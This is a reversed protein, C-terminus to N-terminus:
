LEKGWSIARLAGRGARSVARWGAAYPASSCDIVRRWCSRLPKCCLHVGQDLFCKSKVLPFLTPPALRRTGRWRRLFSPLGLISCAELWCCAMDPTIDDRRRWTHFDAEISSRLYGIMSPASLLWAKNADRDDGVLVMGGQRWDRSRAAAEGLPVQFDAWLRPVEPFIQPGRVLAMLKSFGAVFARQPLM